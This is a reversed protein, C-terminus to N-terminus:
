MAWTKSTLSINEHTRISCNKTNPAYSVEPETDKM